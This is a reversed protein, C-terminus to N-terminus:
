RIRKALPNRSWTMVKSIGQLPLRWLAVGWISQLFQPYRILKQISSAAGMLRSHQCWLDLFATWPTLPSMTVRHEIREIQLIVSTNLSHLFGEDIPVDFQMKLYNLTDRLPLILRLKEAQLILRDWDIVASPNNLVTIADAIWRIPPTVNWRAGHICVHLLQDTPNLAYGAAGHIVVEDVGKWFLDDDTVRRGQSLLHWHLDCEQGVANRFGHSYSVSIYESTPMFDIPTWGTEKLLIVAQEAHEPHVLIDIDNM